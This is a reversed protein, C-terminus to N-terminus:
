APREVLVYQNETVFFQKFGRRKLMALMTSEPRCAAVLRRNNYHSCFFDTMASGIGLGRYAESVAIAHLERESGKKNDTGLIMFFGAVKENVISVWFEIPVAAKGGTWVDRVTTGDAIGQKFALTLTQQRVTTLVDGSFAGNQSGISALHVIEDTDEPLARRITAELRRQQHVHKLNGELRSAHIALRRILRKIRWVLIEVISYLVASQFIDYVYFLPNNAPFLESFVHVRAATSLAVFLYTIKRELLWGCLAIPLIYYPGFSVLPGTLVDLWFIVGELVLLLVFILRKDMGTLINEFRSRYKRLQPM